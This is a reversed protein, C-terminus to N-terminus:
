SSLTKHFVDFLNQDSSPDVVLVAFGIRRFCGRYMRAYYSFMEAVLIPPNHFDGTGLAGLVLSDHGMDLGIQFCSAVKSEMRRREDEHAYSTQGSKKTRDGTKKTGTILRPRRPAAVALVAVTPEPVIQRYNTDRWIKVHPAYIVQQPKLPYFAPDLARFLSTRRFIEEEQTRGCITSCGGPMRDSAADMVMPNLGMNLYRIAMKLCDENCVEIECGKENENENENEKEKENENGKKPTKTPNIFSSFKLTDVDMIRAMTNANGGADREDGRDFATFHLRTEQYLRSRKQEETEGKEWKEGKERKKEM